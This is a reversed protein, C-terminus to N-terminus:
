LYQIGPSSIFITHFSILTDFILIFTQRVFGRFFFVNPIHLSATHLSTIYSHLTIPMTFPRYM